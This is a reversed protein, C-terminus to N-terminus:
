DLCLVLGKETLDNQYRVRVNAFMNYYQGKPNFPSADLTDQYINYGIADRDFM